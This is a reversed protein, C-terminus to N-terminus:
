WPPVSFFFFRVVSLVSLVSLLPVTEQNEERKKDTDDTYDTTRERKGANRRTREELRLRLGRRARDLRASPRAETTFLGCQIEHRVRHPYVAAISGIDMGLL